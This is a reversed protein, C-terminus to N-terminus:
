EQEGAAPWPTPLLGILQLQPILPGLEWPDERKFYGDFEKPMQVANFPRSPHAAHQEVSHPRCSSCSKDGM